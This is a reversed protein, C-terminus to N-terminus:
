FARSAAQHCQACEGLFEIRSARVHFGAPLAGAPDVEGLGEVDMIRGCVTCIAHAHPKVTRGDYRCPGDDPRLEIVQGLRKLAQLTNYVTAISITPHQARVREVLELATPHTRDAALLRALALRQPTRKLGAAQMADILEQTRRLVQDDQM